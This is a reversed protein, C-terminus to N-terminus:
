PRGNPEIAAGTTGPSTTSPSAIGSFRVTKTLEVTRSRSGTRVDEHEEDRLAEAALVAVLVLGDCPAFPFLSNPASQSGDNQDFALGVLLGRRQVTASFLKKTRRGTWRKGLQLLPKGFLGLELIRFWANMAERRHLAEDVGDALSVDIVPKVRVPVTGRAICELDDLRAHVGQERPILSLLVARPLECLAM